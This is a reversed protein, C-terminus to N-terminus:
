GFEPARVDRSTTLPMRIAYELHNLRAEFANLDHLLQATERALYETSRPSPEDTVWYYEIIM